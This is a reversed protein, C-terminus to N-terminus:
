EIWGLLSAAAVVVLCVVWGVGAAIYLMDVRDCLNALRERDPRQSALLGLKAWDEPRM